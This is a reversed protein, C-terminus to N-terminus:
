RKQSCGQERQEVEDGGRQGGRGGGALSSTNVVFLKQQETTSPKRGGNSWREQELRWREPRMLRPHACASGNGM